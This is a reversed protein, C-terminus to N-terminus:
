ASHGFASISLYIGIKFSKQAKRSLQQSAPDSSVAPFPMAAINQM